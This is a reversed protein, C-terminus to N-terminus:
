RRKRSEGNLSLDASPDAKELHGELFFYQRPNHKFLAALVAHPSADLLGRAARFPELGELRIHADRYAVGKGALESLPFKLVAARLFNHRSDLSYVRYTGDADVVCVGEPNHYYDGATEVLILFAQFSPEKKPM